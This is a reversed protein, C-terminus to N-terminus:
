RKRLITADQTLVAGDAPVFEVVELNGALRERVYREPHFAACLNRGAYLDNQVVLDGADFRKREADNMANTRSSGKTTVLLHGGPALVRELEQMWPLQLPEPLHTFVSIAYVVDFTDTEYRLPPELGNAAVHAFPLAANCWKVLKLNADSGYVRTSELQHWHRLIRGCGCGFDLLAAASKIEIGSAHLRERIFRAHDVGSRLYLSLDFHGAVAYVLEPPPLPLGNQRAMAALARNRARLERSRIYGLKARADYVTPLVGLRDLARGAAARM